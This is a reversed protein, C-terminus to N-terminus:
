ISWSVRENALGEHATPRLPALEGTQGISGSVEARHKGSGRAVAMLRDSHPERARRLEFRSACQKSDLAHGIWYVVWTWGITAVTWVLCVQARSRLRSCREARGGVLWCWGSRELLLITLGCSAWRASCLATTSSGLCPSTKRSCSNRPQGCRTLLPSACTNTSTM